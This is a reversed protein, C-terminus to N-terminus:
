KGYRLILKLFSNQYFDTALSSLFNKLVQYVEKNARFHRGSLTSKLEEPFFLFDSPALDQSYAPHDFRERGLRRIHETTDRATHPRANDDSLLVSRPNNANKHDAHPGKASKKVKK